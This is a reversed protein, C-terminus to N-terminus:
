ICRFLSDFCEQYNSAKVELTPKNEDVLNTFKISKDRYKAKIELLFFDKKGILREKDYKTLFKNRLEEELKEITM